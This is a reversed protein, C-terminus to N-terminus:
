PQRDDAEEVGTRAAEAVARAHVALDRAALADRRAAHFSRQKLHSEASVLRSHASRFEGTALDEAGAERAAEIAQRADSMEQVPPGGSACGAAFLLAVTALWASVSAGSISTRLIM